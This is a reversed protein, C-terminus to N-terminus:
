ATLKKFVTEFRDLTEDDVQEFFADKDRTLQHAPGVHDFDRPKHQKERAIGIRKLIPLPKDSAILDAENITVETARNHLWLYDKASFLDEIDATEPLGELQGIVTIHTADVNAAQAASLVKTTVKTTEAGDILARVSLRRGMVAVFAPMNGIGGVPIIALRPDLGTRGKSILYDSMRLLFIFDSSGEVALLPGSGLFLHQSVSYGLAAEVPLITKPDASLSVSTIVVGLSPDERTAQDHIARMTEYRTPDIMHQSHTTYLVQQKPGLQGYVYRLFDGQAEGHLSTGPEDLLVVVREDTDRYASFAALFSFFWQFGTSRTSFNTEVGGHRDDRLEIKLLRHHPQPQGNPDPPMAILDTDFVVTLADNQKWYEFVQDSLDLSAAQLEAKRSDYDEDLFDEPGEGALRLLSMMTEDGRKWQKAKAREALAHLDCEGPLLEYTSFYFFRPLLEILQEHQEDDLNEEVYQKHRDLEVPIKEIAKVRATKKGAGVERARAKAAASVAEISTHDGAIAERDDTNDVGAEEFVHSLIDGLTCYVEARLSGDYLRSAKVYTGAPPRVGVVDELADVDADELAFMATVPAVKDLNKSRRDRSLHRRPYDTTVHFDDANNAPNLRHLAKLITTKGSENKGILCTVQPDVAMTQKNTINRFAEIEVSTVLM